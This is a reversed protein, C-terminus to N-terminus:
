YGEWSELAWSEDTKVFTIIHAKDLCHMACDQNYAPLPKRIEIRFFEGKVLRHPPLRSIADQIHEIPLM